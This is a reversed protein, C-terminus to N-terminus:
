AFAKTSLLSCRAEVNLATGVTLALSIILDFDESIEILLVVPFKVAFDTFLGHRM